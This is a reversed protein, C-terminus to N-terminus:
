ESVPPRETQVFSSEASPRKRHHDTSATAKAQTPNAKNPNPQVPRLDYTVRSLRTSPAPSRKQHSAPTPSATYQQQPRCHQPPPPPPSPSPHLSSSKLPPACAAPQSSVSRRTQLRHSVESVLCPQFRHHHRRCTVNDLITITISCPAPSPPSFPSSGLGHAAKIGSNFRALECRFSSMKASAKWRNQAASGSGTAVCDEVM